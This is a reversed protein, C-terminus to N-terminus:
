NSSILPEFFNLNTIVTEYYKKEFSNEEKGCLSSYNGSIFFRLYNKAKNFTLDINLKDYPAISNENAFEKFIENILSKKFNSVDYINGECTPQFVLIVTTDISKIITKPFYDFVWFNTEMKSKHLLCFYNENKFSIKLLTYEIFDACTFNYDSNESPIANQKSVWKGIDNKMWGKANKITSITDIIKPLESDDRDQSMGWFPILLFIIFLRPM